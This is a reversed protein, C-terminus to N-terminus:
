RTRRPHRRDRQPAVPPPVYRANPRCYGGLGRIEELCAAFTAYSCDQYGVDAGRSMACYPYGNRAVANPAAVVSMIAGVGAAFVAGWRPQIMERPKKVWEM